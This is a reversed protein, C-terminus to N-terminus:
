MGLAAVEFFLVELIIEEGLTNNELLRVRSRLSGVKYRYLEDLEL